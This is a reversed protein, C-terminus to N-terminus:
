TYLSNAPNYIRIDGPMVSCSKGKLHNYLDGTISMAIKNHEKSAGSMAFVEGNYYESKFSAKREEELYEQESLYPKQIATM